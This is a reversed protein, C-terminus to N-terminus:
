RVNFSAEVMIRVAVPEGDKTAPEFRWTSVAKIAQEDLRSTLSKVIKIGTARGDKNVILSLVVTGSAKEKRSKDDYEPESGSIRRPPKVGHGIAYVFEGNSKEGTSSDQSRLQTRGLWVVLVLAFVVLWNRRM